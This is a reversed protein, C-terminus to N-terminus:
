LHFGGGYFYVVGYTFRFFRAFEFGFFVRTIPDVAL